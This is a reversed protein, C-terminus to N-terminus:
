GPPAPGLLRVPHPPHPRPSRPPLPRLRLLQARHLQSHPRAQSERAPLRLRRAPYRLRAGGPPPTAPTLSGPLGPRLIVSLPAAPGLQTRYWAIATDADAPDTLYVPEELHVGAQALARPAIGMEARVALRGPDFGHGTAYSQAPITEDLLTLRVGAQRAAETAAAALATVTATRADLYALLDPGGAGSLSDADAPRPPTSGDFAQSLYARCRAALAPVDAGCETGPVACSPCFCLGLLFRALEGYDELCREHHHGHSTGQYHLAEARLAAIPYRCLDRVMALVYDRVAPRAPCLRGPFRDGFCNEQVESGDASLDDRHLLVAWASVPLGLRGAAQCAEALIDRGDASPSPAPRLPGPYASPDVHYFAGPAMSVVRYAPNHPLIDRSAHYCAAVTLGPGGARERLQAAVREAGEGLLDAPLCYVSSDV